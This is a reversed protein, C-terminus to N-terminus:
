ILQGSKLQAMKESWNKLEKYIQINIRQWNDGLRHTEEERSQKRKSHLLKKSKHPGGQCNNTKIGPSFIVSWLWVNDQIAHEATSSSKVTVPCFFAM